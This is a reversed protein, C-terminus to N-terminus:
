CEIHDARKLEITNGKVKDLAPDYNVEIVFQAKRDPRTKELSNTDQRHEVDVVKLDQDLFIITLPIHTNYMWYPHKAPCEHIFIVGSRDPLDSVDQLGQEREEPTTAPILKYFRSLLKAEIIPKVVKQDM